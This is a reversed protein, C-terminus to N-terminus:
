NQIRQGYRREMLADFAKTLETQEDAGLTRGARSFARKLASLMVEKSPVNYAGEIDPPEVKVYFRKGLLQILDIHDKARIAADNGIGLDLDPGGKEELNILLNLTVLSLASLVSSPDTQSGQSVVSIARKLDSSLVGKPLLNRRAESARM